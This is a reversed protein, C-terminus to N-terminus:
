QRRPIGLDAPSVEAQGIDYLIWADTQVSRWARERAEEGYYPTMIAGRERAYEQLRPSDVIFEEWVEQMTEIVEDPVERRVWIGFYDTALNVEPLWQTIPPIEGHGDIELPQDSFAALPRLRGARIMDAQETALQPTVASEGAVVSTVAPNGGEYSIHRYQVDASQAILEIVKHGTSATGATAVTIQGPRAELDALLDGFDEYPANPHVSIVPVGAVALFIHWDDLSTNLMGLVPYTGLASVAGSTWTYGDAPAELAEATGISGSGGPTNQVVVTRRLADQMEQAVRRIVQDTAGGAAWPVIINIQREPTWSYDLPERAECGPLTTLAMAVAAFCAAAGLAIKRM